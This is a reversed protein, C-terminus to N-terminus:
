LLKQFFRNWRPNLFSGDRSLAIHTARGVVQDVDVFGFVRSDASNNRNDGMVFVKDPPVMVPDFSDIPSRTKSFVVSHRVGDLNEIHHQLEPNLIIPKKGDPLAASMEYHLPKGNLFLRNRYLAIEDGSIGIMRKILRKGDKPSYFVVIDGRQPVQWRLIHWTTYPVKLGYSLKNIFVRDGALITPIMSGTPVDNWDAIASKFSTAILIAAIISFGWGRIFNILRKQIQYLKM